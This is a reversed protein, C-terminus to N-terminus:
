HDCVYDEFTGNCERCRHLQSKCAACNSVCLKAHGLHNEQGDSTEYGQGCVPCHYKKKNEAYIWYNEKMPYTNCHRCSQGISINMGRIPGSTPSQGPRPACLGGDGRAGKRGEEPEDEQELVEGRDRASVEGREEPCPVPAPPYGQHLRELGPHSMQGGARILETDSFARPCTATKM